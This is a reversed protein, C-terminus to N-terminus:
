FTIAGPFHEMKAQGDPLFDITFLDCRVLADDLGNNHLYEAVARGMRRSKQTTMAAAATGMVDSTRTKVEVFVWEKGNKAVIDLEGRRLRVRRDVIRLGRERLFAAAMEEGAEGIRSNHNGAM